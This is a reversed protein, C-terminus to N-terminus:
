SRDERAHWIRIVVIDEQAMGYRIVYGSNGFPVVIERLSGEM